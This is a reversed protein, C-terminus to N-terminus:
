NAKQKLSVIIDDTINNTDSGLKIIQEEINCVNIIKSKKDSKNDEYKLVIEEKTTDSDSLFVDPSKNYVYTINNYNDSIKENLQNEVIENINPTEVDNDSTNSLQENLQNEVIENINPTDDDNDSTNSLQENLQNEVTENINLLENNNDFINSLKHEKM